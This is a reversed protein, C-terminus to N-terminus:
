MHSLRATAHLPPASPAVAGPMWEPPADLPIKKQIFIYTFSLFFYTTAPVHNLVSFNQYTLSKSLHSFFPTLFNLFQFFKPSHSFFYTTLFQLLRFKTSHISVIRSPM